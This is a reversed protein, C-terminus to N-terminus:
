CSYRFVIPSPPESKPTTKPSPVARHTVSPHKCFITHKELGMKPTLNKAVNGVPNNWTYRSSQTAMDLKEGDGHISSRCVGVSRELCHSTTIACCPCLVHHFHPSVFAFPLPGFFFPPPPLTDFVVCFLSPALAFSFSFPSPHFFVIGLPPLTCFCFASTKRKREKGIAASPLKCGRPMGGCINLISKINKKRRSRPTADPWARRAPVKCGKGLGSIHFQLAGHAMRVTMALMMMLLIVMLTFNFHVM